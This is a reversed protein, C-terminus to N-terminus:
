SNVFSLPCRFICSIIRCCFVSFSVACSFIVMLDLVSFILSSASFLLLFRECFIAAQASRVCLSIYSILYGINKQVYSILKAPYQEAHHEVGPTDSIQRVCLFPTRHLFCTQAIAASEMDVALANPFKGKIATIEEQKVIFRDGCCLLGKTYESLKSTLETDSHYYLPLDTIEYKNDEGCWVDHYTIDSGVIFDGINLSSDLGGSIGINVITDVHFHNILYTSCIAANVKGIGCIVVVVEKNEINGELFTKQAIVSKSFNQLSKAFLELEKDMAIIVGIKM